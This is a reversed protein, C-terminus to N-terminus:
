LKIIKALFLLDLFLLLLAGIIFLHHKPIGKTSVDKSERSVGDLKKLAHILKDQQNISSNVEYYEGKTLESLQQLSKKNLKTHVFQGNYDKKYGYKEPIKGGNITGIGITFVKINEDKIQKALKKTKEGFDEGDSIFVIIKAKSSIKNEKHKTLALELPPAFDTSKEVTNSMVELHENFANLDHTIPCFVQNIYPFVIIGFNDGNLEKAVKKVVSKARLFRSPAVDKCKMSASIDLLFYIDKAKHEGKVQHLKDKNSVPHYPQLYAISLCAVVLTRIIFKLAVNIYNVKYDKPIIALRLFYLSYFSFYVIILSILVYDLSANFKM